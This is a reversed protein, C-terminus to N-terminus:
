SERSAPRNRRREQGRAVAAAPPLHNATDREAAEKALRLNRLRMTNAAEAHREDEDPPVVKVHIANAM